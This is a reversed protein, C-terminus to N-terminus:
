RVSFTTSSYVYVDNYEDSSADVATLDLRYNGVPLQGFKLYKNVATNKITVKKSNPYCEAEMVLEGTDENYIEGYFWTIKYNSTITGTLNYSHGQRISSPVGLNNFRLTSRAAAHSSVAPMIALLLVLMLVVIKKFTKRM